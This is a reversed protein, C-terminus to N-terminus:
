HWALYSRHYTSLSNYVPSAAIFPQYLPLDKPLNSIIQAITVVRSSIYFFYSYQSTLEDYFTTNPTRYIANSTNFCNSFTSTTVTQYPTVLVEAMQCALRNAQKITLKTKYTLSIKTLGYPSLPTTFNLIQGTSPYGLQNM